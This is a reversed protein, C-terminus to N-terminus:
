QTLASRRRNREVEISRNAEEIQASVRALLESTPHRRAAAELHERAATIDGRRASALALYTMIFSRELRDPQDQLGRELLDVGEEIEGLEVLVAGRVSQTEPLWPTLEFSARSYHDADSLVKGNGVTLDFSALNSMLASRLQPDLDERVLIKHIGCRADEVQGLGYMALCLYAQLYANDPFRELANACWQYAQEYDYRELLDHAELVYFNMVETEVETNTKMISTWLGLVDNPVLQGAMWVRRPWLNTLLEILMCWCVIGLVWKWLTDGPLKGFLLCAVALLAVNVTPGALYVFFNKTRALFPTKPVVYAAGGLPMAKLEVKCGFIRLSLLTRGASGIAIGFVRMNLAAAVAAHGLEHPLVRLVHSVIFLPVFLAFLGTDWRRALALWLLGFVAVVAVGQLYDSLSLSAIQEACRPCCFQRYRGQGTYAFASGLTSRCGCRGCTVFLSGGEHPRSLSNM